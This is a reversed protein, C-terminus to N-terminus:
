SDEPLSLAEQQTKLKKAVYHITEKSYSSLKDQKLYNNLCKPLKKRDMRPVKQLRTLGKKELRYLFTRVRNYVRTWDDLPYNFKAMVKYTMDMISIKKTDVAHLVIFDSEQKYIRRDVVKKPKPKYKEEHFPVFYKEPDRKSVHAPYFGILFKGEVGKLTWLESTKIVILSKKKDDPYFLVNRRKTKPGYKPISELLHNWSEFQDPRYYKLEM